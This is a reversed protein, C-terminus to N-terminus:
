GTQDFCGCFVRSTYGTLGTTKWMSCQNTNEVSDESWLRKVRFMETSNNFVCLMVDLSGLRKLMNKYESLTIVKDCISCYLM